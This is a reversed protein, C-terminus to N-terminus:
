DINRRPFQCLDYPPFGLDLDFRLTWNCGGRCRPRRPETRASKILIRSYHTIIRSYHASLNAALLAFRGEEGREERESVAAPFKRSQSTCWERIRSRERSRPSADATGGSPPWRFPWGWPVRIGERWGPRSRTRYLSLTSTWRSFRGVARSGTRDEHKQQYKYTKTRLMRRLM